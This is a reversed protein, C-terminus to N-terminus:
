DLAKVLLLCRGRQVLRLAKCLLLAAKSVTVTVQTLKYLEHFCSHFAIMLLVMIFFAIMLQLVMTYFAITYFAIMLLLVMTNFAIMLLLVMTHSVGHTGM